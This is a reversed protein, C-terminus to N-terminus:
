RFRLIGFYQPLHFDPKSNIVPNWTIYHPNSNNMAIKYFNGRWEVGPQPYSIKSYKELIRVPIRFEVSWTVPDKIEPDIVLPLTHAIEVEALEDREIIRAEKRPIINYHMLATGGCNVELNFYRESFNNDPAFFFEVCSDEWVPGNTDKTVCRIFCDKVNFIIYLNNSDYMMKVQVFPQFGPVEGMCFAVDAPKINKWQPKSWDADIKFPRTLKNVSYVSTIKM